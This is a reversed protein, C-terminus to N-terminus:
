DAHPAEATAAIAERLQGRLTDFAPQDPQNSRDLAAQCATLLGAYISLLERRYAERRRKLEDMLPLFGRHQENEHTIRDQVAILETLLNEIYDSM